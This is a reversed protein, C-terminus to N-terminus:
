FKLALVLAIILTDFALAFAVGKVIKPM